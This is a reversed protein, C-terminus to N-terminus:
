KLLVMKGDRWEGAVEMRYLYVGTAVARGAEDTGDWVIEGRGAEYESGGLTNVLRGTVDYVSVSVTGPQPLSFAIRTMPNFPNPHNGYLKLSVPLEDVGTSEVHLTVPITVREGGNSDIILDAYYDGETLGTADFQLEINGTQGANVSGTAPDAVLWNVPRYISFAADSDDQIVPDTDGVIRVLCDDSVPGAVNWAYSGDNDTSSVIDYWTSGGDTSYSLSAYFFEGTWTWTITNVEGIGWEEGGNPATLTVTPGPPPSLVVTGSVVHPAGGYYDGTLTYGVELDGTFGPGITVNITSTATEAPYIVSGWAGEWHIAAGMGTTGDWTLTRSSVVFDTCSNVTVGFPFDLDIAEIWENDGSGNYALFVIDMTTGAEYEDPNSTVTSGTLNRASGADVVDIQYNLVSLAEGVNSIYLMETTSEGPELTVEFSMPAVDIEPQYTPGVTVTGFYPMANFSTVTLTLEEGDSMTEGIPISANGSANAFASGYLVGDRYLACLAGEEGAVTVDFSTAASEIMDEHSVSLASPTDTRVRLSPDGFIHWTLFMNAGDTGSEDMMQCSGNYCLGGYTLKEEAVLLDTVEDQAQMPPNWSQNISSMYAGIAGTPETGNTARLWAEGFCTYSSFNGNVCAVSIIFPLMNDNSLANIHTNSFGSSGWSTTSGHGTYNIISRGDNLGATVMAATGTPDYIQDVETYTFALLDTRINDVHQYDYEGDDGPGQDSAVGMGKHYWASGSMPTKEYEISRTVQTEVQSTNEASFRGIFVEPYSDSGALLSYSPDSSGGAASLTPVQAADGVLLVFALDNANYYNQIYTKIANASGGATSVSVMECPVGMQNKWDVFPEMATMFSDYAIVLMGGTEEVPTYRDMRAEEYNLFHRSYLREFEAVRPREVTRSLVNTRGAGVARAEVILHTYVRLTKTAPNYQFPNVVVTLGRVDRMIYPDRAFAVESPYWGDTRYFPDFTYSVTAPDTTRLITGKSPAVPVDEFDVYSSGLVRVDMGSADPIIISRAVLPLEPLGRDSSHPEGELSVSYYTEGGIVVPSKTFSGLEYEIVTRSDSSEMVTATVAEAGGGLTVIDAASAALTLALIMVLALTTGRM